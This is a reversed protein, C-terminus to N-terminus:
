QRYQSLQQTLCIQRLQRMFSRELVIQLIKGAEGSVFVLKVQEATSPDLEVLLKQHAGSLNPASFLKHMSFTSLSVLNLALQNRQVVFPFREADFGPLLALDTCYVESQSPCDIKM